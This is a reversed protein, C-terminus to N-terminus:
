SDAERDDAPLRWLAWLAQDGASRESGRTSQFEHWRELRLRFSSDGRVCAEAVACRACGEYEKELRSDALRPPHLGRRRAGLLTRAAESLAAGSAGDSALAQAHRDAELEPDLFLYRGEAPEEPVGALYLAVQLRTGDRVAALLKERRKSDTAAVFRSAPAGIKFDTLVLIGAERSVRDIRFTTREPRGRDDVLDVGGNVESGLLRLDHTAEDIKRAVELRALVQETLLRALGGSPRGARRLEAVAAKRAVERVQEAPPWVLPVGPSKTAAELTVDGEAGDFLRQLAAHVATGIWRRELAPLAELPDPLAELRLTKELFAQWGCRAHAELTTVATGAGSTTPRGLSGFYPGLVRIRERGAESSADTDFEALIALRARGAARAERASVAGFRRRGEELAEPLIEGLGRPDGALGAAIARDLLPELGPRSEPFPGLHGTRRLAELLPSPPLPKGAADAISRCFVVRPAAGALQAFLFREEGHGEAKVPLDPLLDRLRLRLTDSLVPEVGIARPFSGRVLGLVFLLDFTRGRAEVVTLLQVGSGAGGAVVAARESEARRLLDIVESRELRISGPLEVDLLTASELLRRGGGSTALSSGELWGALARRHESWSATSPWREIGRTLLRLERLASELREVAIRRRVLTGIPREDSEVADEDTTPEALGSRVPLPLGEARYSDLAASRLDIAAGLRAIGLARFALRLAGREAAAEAGLVELAVDISTERGAELTRLLAASRHAAPATPGVAASGSYPVGQRALERRLAARHAGPHRLVLGIREPDVGDQLASAIAAVAARAELDPMAAVQEFYRAPEALPALPDARGLVGTLRERLRAGFEPGAEARGPFSPVVLLATLDAARGLAELLDSAVGTADAFGFLLHARGALDVRGETLAAAARLFLGADPALNKRELEGLTDALAELLGRARGLAAPPTTAREADLREGLSDVHEPRLGADVLDRAAAALPAWGDSFDGFAAALARRRRAARALELEFLAAGRPPPEGARALLDLALARLTVVDLGLWAARRHALRALLDNRLSNSPVIVRVSRILLAPPVGPEFLADLEAFLRAEASRSDPALVLRSSEPM